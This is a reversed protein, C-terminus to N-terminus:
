REPRASRLASRGEGTPALCKTTGCCAACARGTHASRASLRPCARLPLRPSSEQRSRGRGLPLGHPPCGCGLGDASRATAPARAALLWCEAGAARAQMFAVLWEKAGDNGALYAADCPGLSGGAGRKVSGPLRQPARPRPASCASPHNTSPAHLSADHHRRPAALRLLRCGGHTVAAHLLPAFALMAAALLHCPHSVDAALKVFRNLPGAVAGTNLGIRDMSNLGRRLRAGDKGHTDALGALLLLGATRRPHTAAFCAAYPAGGSEGVHVATALGLADQLQRADDVVSAVSMRPNVSSEGMGSCLLNHTSSAPPPLAAHSGLCAAAHLCEWPLRSSTHLACAALRQGAAAATAALQLLSARAGATM